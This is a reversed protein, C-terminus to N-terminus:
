GLPAYAINPLWVLPSNLFHLFMDMGLSIPFCPWHKYAGSRRLPSWRSCCCTSDKEGEKRWICMNNHSYDKTRLTKRLTLIPFDGFLIFFLVSLVSMFAAAHYVTICSFIKSASYNAFSAPLFFFLTLFTGKFVIHGQPILGLLQKGEFDGLLSSQTDSRFSNVATCVTKLQGFSACQGWLDPKHHTIFACVFARIVSIILGAIIIRHLIFHRGSIHSWGMEGYLDCQAKIERSDNSNSAIPLEFWIITCSM